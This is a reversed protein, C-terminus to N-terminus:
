AANKRKQDQVRNLEEQIEQLQRVIEASKYSQYKGYIKDTRPRKAVVATMQEFLNM